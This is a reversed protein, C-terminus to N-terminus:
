MLASQLKLIPLFVGLIVLGALVGIGVEVAPVLLLLTREFSGRLRGELIRGAEELGGAADGRREAAGVIWLLSPPLIGAERAAESLGAGGRVREAMGAAARELDPCDAAAVALEVARDAPLGRRLLGGLIGTFAHLSARLRLPGVIPLRLGVGMPMTVGEMPSRLWGFAVWTALLLPVVLLGRASLSFVLETLPPLPLPTGRADGVQDFIARFQPVIEDLVFWGFLAVAAHLIAPYLFARRTRALAENRVSAHRAIEELAGPLDGSAVGAEVLAAYVSPFTDRRAAYAEPLPTGKEVEAALEAAATRLAGSDLDEAVTRFAKGLPMGGRCLAALARHFLALQEHDRM